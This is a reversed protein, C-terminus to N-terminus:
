SASGNKAAIDQPVGINFHFAADASLTVVDAEVGRDDHRHKM